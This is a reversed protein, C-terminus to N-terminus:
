TLCNLSRTIKCRGEDQGTLCNNRVTVSRKNTGLGAFNNNEGQDLCTRDASFLGGWGEGDGNLRTAAKRNLPYPLSRKDNQFATVEIGCKMLHKFATQKHFM